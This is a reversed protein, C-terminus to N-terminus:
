CLANQNEAKKIINSKTIINMALNKAATATTNTQIPIVLGKILWPTEFFSGSTGLGSSTNKKEHGITVPTNIM